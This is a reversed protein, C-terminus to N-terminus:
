TELVEELLDLLGGQADALVELLEEVLGVCYEEFLGAALFYVLVQFSGHGDEDIFEFVVWFFIFVVELSEVLLATCEGKLLSYLQNISNNGALM